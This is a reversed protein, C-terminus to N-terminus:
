EPRRRIGEVLQTVLADLAGSLDPLPESAGDAGAELGELGDVADVALALDCDPLDLVLARAMSRGKANAFAPGPDVLALVRGQVTIAGKVVEHAGPIPVPVQPVAVSRVRELPLTGRFPGAETDLTFRVRRGM